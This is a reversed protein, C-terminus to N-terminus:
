IEVKASRKAFGQAGIYINKSLKVIGFDAISYANSIADSLM